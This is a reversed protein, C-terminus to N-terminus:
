LLSEEGLVFAKRATHWQLAVRRLALAHLSCERLTNHSYM